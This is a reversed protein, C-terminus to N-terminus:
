ASIEIRCKPHAECADALKRLFALAGDYDGWKPNRTLPRYFDPDAEMRRIGDRLPALARECPVGAYDRLGVGLAWAWMMSVNSTHNGVEVVEIPEPGGTDIVLCIDYSV